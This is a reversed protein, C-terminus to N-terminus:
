NACAEPPVLRLVTELFSEPDVPKEMVVDTAQCTVRHPAGTVFLVPAEAMGTMRRLVKLVESGSIGALGEDLIVLAPKLERFRLLASLGGSVKHVHLGVAQLVEALTDLTGVDDDVILVTRMLPFSDM